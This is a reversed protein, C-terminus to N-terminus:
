NKNHTTNPSLGNKYENNLSVKGSEDFMKWNGERLGDVFLGKEKIKGGPYYWTWISDPKNDKFNGMSELEGSPYYYTWIGENKDFVINGKMLTKGNEFSITFLGNKIGNTVFYEFLKGESKTKIIGTYPKDSDIRYIINNKITFSGRDIKKPNCSVFLIAILVLSLMKIIM